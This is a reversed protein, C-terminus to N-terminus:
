QAVTSRRLIITALVVLALAFGALILVNGALGLTNLAFGHFAAQQAVIAYYVPLIEALVQNAPTAFALPGFAGSLFFLPLTLGFALGVVPQRARIWTGLVTGLAVFIILTLLTVALMEGWHLPEVGLVLILVALVIAVSGLSILLAGLMKGVMVAWRSAPSLLLEKMTGNEWEKAAGIGSQLVGGIMLAIVLISVGLYPVYDTDRPYLDQEKPVITVLNPFAKAYFSTISLPVARRIDNTFDTNLNNVEVGVQVPQNQSIKQDFDAPITVVAVIRGTDILHQADAAGALQLRFSHAHSM